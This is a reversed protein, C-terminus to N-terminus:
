LEQEHRFPAENRFDRRMVLVPPSLLVIGCLGVWPKDFLVGLGATAAGLFAAGLMVRRRTRHANWAAFAALPPMLHKTFFAIMEAGM